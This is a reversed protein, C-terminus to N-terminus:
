FRRPLDLVDFSLMLVDPTDGGDPRLPADPLIIPAPRANPYVGARSWSLYLSFTFIQSVLV